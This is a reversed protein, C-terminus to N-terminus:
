DVSDDDTTEWSGRAPDTLAAANMYRQFRCRITGDRSKESHAVVWVKNEIQERCRQAAAALTLFQAM